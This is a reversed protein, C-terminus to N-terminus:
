TYNSLVTYKTFIEKFIPLDAKTFVVALNLKWNETKYLDNLSTLMAGMIDAIPHTSYAYSAIDYGRDIMENRFDEIALPDLVFIISDAYRYGIQKTITDRRQFVEGSVDCLSILNNIKQDAKNFYFNYFVLNDDHTSEPFVGKNLYEEFRLREDGQVDYFYKYFYNNKAGINEIENLASNIFCTKGSSRGGFVPFITAHHLGGVIGEGCNPCSQRLKHRGNIPLTPLLEGCTCRHHLVGYISPYLYKHPAGCNPCHYVPVDFKRQCHPCSNNIKKIARYITDITALVFFGIYLGAMAFAAGIVIILSFLATFLFGFLFRSAIIIGYYAYLGIGFFIGHEDFTGKFLEATDCVEDWTNLFSEKITEFLDKYVKEFFYGKIAYTEQKMM